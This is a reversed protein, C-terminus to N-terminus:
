NEALRIEFRGSEDSVAEMRSQITVLQADTCNYKFLSIRGSDCQAARFKKNM